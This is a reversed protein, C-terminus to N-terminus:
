WRAVASWMWTRAWAVATSPICTARCPKSTRQGQVARTVSDGYGTTVGYVVGEEELLRELLAPGAEIRARFATDSTLRVALQGEAVAILQELTIDSGDLILASSSTAPQSM